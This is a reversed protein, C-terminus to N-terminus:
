LSHDHLEADVDLVNQWREYHIDIPGNKRIYQTIMFGDIPLVERANIYAIFRKGHECNCTRTELSKHVQNWESECVCFPYNVSTYWSSSPRKGFDVFYAVITKDNVFKEFLLVFKDFKNQACVDRLDMLEKTLIEIMKNIKQNIVNEM